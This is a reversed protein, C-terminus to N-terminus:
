YVTTVFSMVINVFSCSLRSKMCTRNTCLEIASFCQLCLRSVIQSYEFYNHAYFSVQNRAISLQHYLIFCQSFHGVRFYHLKQSLIYHRRHTNYCLSYVWYKGSDQSFFIVPMNSRHSEFRRGKNNKIGSTFKVDRKPLKKSFYKFKIRFCRFACLKHTLPTKEEIIRECSRRGNSIFKWLNTIKHM